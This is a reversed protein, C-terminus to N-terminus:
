FVRGERAPTGMGLKKEVGKLDLGQLFEPVNGRRLMATHWILLRPIWPIRDPSQGSMIALLRERNTM